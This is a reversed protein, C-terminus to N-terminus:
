RRREGGKKEREAPGSDDGDLRAHLHRGPRGHRVLGHWRRHGKRGQRAGRPPPLQPPSCLSNKKTELHAIPMSRHFLSLSMRRVGQAGREQQRGPASELLDDHSLQRSSVSSRRCQSVPLSPLFLVLNERKKRKSRRAFLLLFFHFFYVSRSLSKENELRRRRGGGKGVGIGGKRKLSFNYFCFFCSLSQM